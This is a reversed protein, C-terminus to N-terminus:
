FSDILIALDLLESSINLEEKQIVKQNIEFGLNPIEGILNIMGGIECFNKINDGITLIHKNKLYDILYEIESNKLHSLFILHCHKIEEPTHYLELKWNRGKIKKNRLTLSLHPILQENGFIGLIFPSMSFNFANQPWEIFKTINNIYASKILEPELKEDKM